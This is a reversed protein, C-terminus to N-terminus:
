AIKLGAKEEFGSLKGVGDSHHHLVLAAERFSAKSIYMVLM